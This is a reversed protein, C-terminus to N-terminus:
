QDLWRRFRQWLTPRPPDLWFRAQPSQAWSAKEVTGAVPIARSIATDLATPYVWNGNRTPDYRYGGYVNVPERRDHKGFYYLNEEQWEKM